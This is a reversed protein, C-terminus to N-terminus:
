GLEPQAMTGIEDMPSYSGECHYCFLEPDSCCQSHYQVLRTFEATVDAPDSGVIILAHRTGSYFAEYVLGFRGRGFIWDQSKLALLVNIKANWDCPRIKSELVEWAGPMDWQCKLIDFLQNARYEAFLNPATISSVVHINFM